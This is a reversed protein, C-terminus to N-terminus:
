RRDVSRRGPSISSVREREADNARSWVTGTEDEYQIRVNLSANSELRYLASAHQNPRLWRPFNVANHAAILDMRNALFAPRRTPLVGGPELLPHHADPWRGASLRAFVDAVTQTSRTAGGPVGHGRSDVADVSVQLDVALSSGHNVVTVAWIRPGLLAVPTRYITVQRPPAASEVGKALAVVAKAVRTAFVM